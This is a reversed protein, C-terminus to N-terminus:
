CIIKLCNSDSKERNKNSLPLSETKPELFKLGLVFDQSILEAYIELWFEEPTLSCKHLFSKGTSNRSLQLIRNDLRISLREFGNKGCNLKCPVFSFYEKNDWWSQGHYLRKQKSPNPGLYESKLQELTEERYTKSYSIAKNECVEVASECQKKVFVTDVYFVDLSPYTSGFLVLSGEGLSCLEGTQKCTAYKFYNGYIYPDTNQTGNQPMSHFPKHIGNPFRKYDINKIPEFYSNGEWEGWFYLEAKKPEKDTLNNLYEGENLIFKRYHNECNWERCITDNILSYGNGIKFPKQNGPHNLQVKLKAM